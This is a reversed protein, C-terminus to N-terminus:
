MKFYMRSFEESKGKFETHFIHLVNQETNYGDYIIPAESQPPQM